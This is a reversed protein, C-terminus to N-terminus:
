PLHHTVDSAARGPSSWRRAFIDRIIMVTLMVMLITMVISRFRPAAAGRTPPKQTM